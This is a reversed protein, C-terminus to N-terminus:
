EKASDQENGISSYSTVAGRAQIKLSREETGEGIDGMFFFGHQNHLQLVKSMSAMLTERITPQIDLSLPFSCMMMGKCFTFMGQQMNKPVIDSLTAELDKILKERDEQESQNQQKKVDEDNIIMEMLDSTLKTYVENLINSMMGKKSKPVRCQIDLDVNLPTSPSISCEELSLRVDIGRDAYKKMESQLLMQLRQRVINPLASPHTSPSKTTIAPTDQLQKPSSPAIFPNMDGVPLISPRHHSARSNHTAGQSIESSVTGQIDFLDSCLSARSMSGVESITAM